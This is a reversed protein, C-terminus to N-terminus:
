RTRITHPPLQQVKKQNKLIAECYGPKVKTVLPDISEFYPALQAVGKSFAEPGMQEFMQLYQSM